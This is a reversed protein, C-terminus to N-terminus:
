TNNRADWFKLIEGSNIESTQYNTTGCTSTHKTGDLGYWYVGQDGFQRAAWETGGTGNNALGQIHYNTGGVAQTDGQSGMISIDCGLPTEASTVGVPTNYPSDGGFKTDCSGYGGSTGCDDIHYHLGDTTTHIDFWVQTNDSDTGCDYNVVTGTGGAYFRCWSHDGNMLEM